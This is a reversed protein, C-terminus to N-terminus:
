VMRDQWPVAGVSSYYEKLYGRVLKGERTAVNTGQSCMIDDMVAESRWSGPVVNGNEDERDLDQPTNTPCRRRLLNHLCLTASVIVRVTEPEQCMTTLLCRFRNALIGFANEVVRRARSLRYNFIRSKPDLNRASFPKQLWPRLPFADDGIIFFPVDYTDHPLRCPAPFGLTNDALARSLSSQNFISCDSTSGHAGIDAWIFKYDADVLALLIISFYGKYNYYLSGSKRPARIAVHKGDIAGCAHHFNWRSSFKDAIEGWGEANDPM